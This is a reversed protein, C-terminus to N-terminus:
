RDTGGTANLAQSYATGVTGAPLSSTTLNLGPPNITLSLAATTSQSASDAVKLTFNSTGAATPTGSITGGSINLGAPLSGSAISWSYPPTGGGANLAQSYATGVSGAPLSSTTLNLGPPNITLSLAGTTSQSATDAVKVTFRDTGAATPTGSITGGSINLGAPLSGSVISWSYPPTGGTANLPQSYATGVTGAPLSSTTLNLGPPSITLSLAATDSKSASDAVKLTFNSTGAATPTGSITGGSINLGAPLSGSAISWPY